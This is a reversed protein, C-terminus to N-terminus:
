SPIIVIVVVLGVNTGISHITLLQKQYSSKNSQFLQESGQPALNDVPHVPYKYAKNRNNLRWTKKERM